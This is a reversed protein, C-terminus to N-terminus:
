LTSGRLGDCRIDGPGGPCLKRRCRRRNRSASRALEERGMLALSKAARCRQGVSSSRGARVPKDPNLEEDLLTVGRRDPRGLGGTVLDFVGGAPWTSRVGLARVGQVPNAAGGSVRKSRRRGRFRFTELDTVTARMRVLSTETMPYFTLIVPSVDHKGSSQRAGM